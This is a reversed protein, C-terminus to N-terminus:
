MTTQLSMVSASVMGPNLSVYSNQSLDVPSSDPEPEPEPEPSAGEVDDCTHGICTVLGFPGLMGGESSGTACYTDTPTFDFVVDSASTPEDVFGCVGGEAEQSNIEQGPFRSRWHTLANEIEDWGWIDAGYHFNANSDYANHDMYVAVGANKPQVGLNQTSSGVVNSVINNYFELNYDSLSILNRNTFSCLNNFVEDHSVGMDYELHQMCWEANHVINGYAHPSSGGGFRIGVAGTDVFRNFRVTSDLSDRHLDFGWVPAGEVTNFEWIVRNSTFEKLGAGRDANGCREGAGAIDHAYNHHAVCDDCNELRFVSWNGDGCSAWGTIGETFQIINHRGRVQILGDIFL